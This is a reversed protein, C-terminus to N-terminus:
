DHTFFRPVNPGFTGSRAVHSHNTAGAAMVWLEKAGAPQDGSGYAIHGHDHPPKGPNFWVALVPFGVRARSIATSESCELWGAARGLESGLWRELENAKMGEPLPVGAKQCARRVATNCWTVGAMFHPPVPWWSPQLDVTHEVDVEAIIANTAAASRDPIVSM